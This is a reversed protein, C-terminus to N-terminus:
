MAPQLGAKSASALPLHLRECVHHSYATEATFKSGIRKLWSLVEEGTDDVFTMGSLDVLLSFPFTSDAVAKQADHAFEGVLRGEVRMMVTNALEKFQVRLM